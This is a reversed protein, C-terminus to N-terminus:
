SDHRAPTSRRARRLLLVGLLLVVAGVAALPAADSGTPALTGSASGTGAGTGAGITPTGGTTGGATGGSTGAARGAIVIRLLSADNSPNPDRVTTSGLHAPIQMTRGALNADFTWVLTFTTSTRPELPKDIECYLYGADAWCRRDETTIHWGNPFLDPTIPLYAAQTEADPGYNTMVLDTRVPVGTAVKEKPATWKMGWDSGPDASLSLTATNNQPNVDVATGIDAAVTVPLKTGVPVGAGVRLKLEWQSEDAPPVARCTISRAGAAPTCFTLSEDGRATSPVYTLGPPLTMTFALAPLSGSILRADGTVYLERGPAIRTDTGETVEVSAVADVEGPGATATPGATAEPHAGTPVTTAADAPTSARAQSPGGPTASGTSGATVGQASAAAPGLVLLATVAAGM